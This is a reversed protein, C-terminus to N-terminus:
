CQNGAHCADWPQHLPQRFRKLAQLLSLEAVWDDWTCVQSVALQIAVSNNFAL